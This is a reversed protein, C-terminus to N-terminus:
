GRGSCQEKGSFSVSTLLSVVADRLTLLLADNGDTEILTREAGIRIRAGLAGLDIVDGGGEHKVRVDRIGYSALAGVVTQTQLSGFLLGRPAFSAAAAAEIGSGPEGTTAGAVAAATAAAAAAAATELTRKAVAALSDGAGAAATGASERASGAPHLTYQYDRCDLRAVVGVISVGGGVDVPTLGDALAVSLAAGDFQQEIPVPIYRIILL